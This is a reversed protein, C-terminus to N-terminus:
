VNKIYGLSSLYSTLNVITNGNFRALIEVEYEDEKMNKHVKVFVEKNRLLNFVFPYAEEKIDEKSVGFLKTDKLVFVGFGLDFLISFNIAEYVKIIKARYIYNLNM